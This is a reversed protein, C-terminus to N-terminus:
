LGFQDRVEFLHIDEDRAAVHFAPHEGGEVIEARRNVDFVVADDELQLMTFAALLRKIRIKLTLVLRTRTLLYSVLRQGLQSAEGRAEGGSELGHLNLPGILLGVERTRVAAQL